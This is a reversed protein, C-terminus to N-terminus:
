GCELLGEGAGGGRGAPPAVRDREDAAGRRALGVVLELLAASEPEAEAYDVAREDEREARAPHLLRDSAGGGCRGRGELVGAVVGGDADVQAREGIRQPGEVKAAGALPAGRELGEDLLPYQREERVEMVEDGRQAEIAGAQAELRREPRTFSSGFRR